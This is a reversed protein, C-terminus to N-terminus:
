TLDPSQISGDLSEHYFRGLRRRTKNVEEEWDIRWTLVALAIVQSVWGILMGIWIGKVGLEAVFALLCGVPIGIVYYSVVNVIAVKAQSGSGIAVGAYDM